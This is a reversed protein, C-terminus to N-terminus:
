QTQFLLGKPLFIFLFKSFAFYMAIIVAAAGVNVPIPKRIHFTLTFALTIAISSFIFGVLWMLVAYAALMGVTILFNKFNKHITEKTKSAPTIGRIIEVVCALCLVMVCFLPYKLAELPLHQVCVGDVIIALGIAMVIAAMVASFSFHRQSEM